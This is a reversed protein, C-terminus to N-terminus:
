EDRTRKTHLVDPAFAIVLLALIAVVFAIAMALMDYGITDPTLVLAVYDTVAYIIFAALRIMLPRRASVRTHPHRRAAGHRLMRKRRSFRATGVRYLTAAYVPRHIRCLSRCRTAGDRSQADTRSSGEV